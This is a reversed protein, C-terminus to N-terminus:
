RMLYDGTKIPWKETAIGKGLGPKYPFASSAMFAVHGDRVQAEGRLTIYPSCVVAHGYRLYTENFCTVNLLGTEDELDFFLVRRGSVTPPFRLRIPNGVVVARAKHPLCSAEAATIVGKEQIREREFAVLHQEVDLSLFRREYLVKEHIDFDGIDSPYNPEPITLPLDSERNAAFELAQPIAWLLARRNPHLVDLAGCLILTELEDREPRTRAVFEFFSRYNGQERADVIQRQFGKTLGKIQPISVRIGANPLILKPDELSQVDEVNFTLNSLNVNPPLIKVGRVRAENVLTCPGYYGAPQADLLASFYEAPYNQQCWVSRISIEAFALAHGEAFGYGKFGAVLEYVEEAVEQSYGSKLIRGMVEEQINKVHVDQRKKQIAERIDEAEDASYCGFTQLLLDVQEQFIIIGYTPGLITKLSEHLFTVPKGQRRAILENLKVAGGVGPRIGAQVISADKLDKTGLRIHAQRMAPSASQPIGILNGARMTRFVEEDEMSLREVSFDKDQLRVREQTHSLVDNGRLCLVDFKDFYHKASRKDWQIIKVGEAGSHAVPVTDAIPDRSIVVGCSHARLNRPVDRLMAALRFVWRFREVPIGSDRLEPKRGIERELGEPSVSGHLRKSLYDLSEQPIGMVKGVERVIGRTCYTGVAAVTAVHADGYKQALYNRVDDRRGAEFDIDIDPRKSTMNESMFRDFHLNHVVADVRSLGLCYAVASDVVSGRGSLIIGQEKAWRCMDWAVLFHGSFSNGIIRDLETKLRAKRDPHYPMEALSAKVLQTLFAPENDCFTPLETRNPLVRSECREVIRMTNTLLEKHDAYLQELESPTRLHREANLARQPCSRLQPQAPDRRPKRGVIEDIACLTEICVLTDQAPFHEPRRHRIPGGAVPILRKRAALQLLQTNVADEWPLFSREIQIFVNERGYLGILQDLIAEAAQADFHSLRRNLLGADGGTLCILDQSHRELREWTCLPFLRPEDLHCATILRSLNKYGLPTRAILVIESGDELELTAGVLPVIGCNRCMKSFEHAGTLSFHDALLAAQYLRAEPFTPIAECIMGSRGFSYGSQLHLLAYPSQNALAIRTDCTQAITVERGRYHRVAYDQPVEEESVLCNLPLIVERKSRDLYRHVERAPENLWWEGAERWVSQPSDGAPPMSGSRFFVNVARFFCSKASNFLKAVM